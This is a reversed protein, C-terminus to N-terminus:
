AKGTEALQQEFEDAALPKGYLYGQFSLCGQGLLVAEQAQNEVGEAVINLQMSAAIDIMSRVIALDYNDTAIDRVFSQDIKIQDIPMRKLHTLSSHGTGFDDMSLSVGLAKLQQMIEITYDMDHLAMSETIELKLRAPEIGSSRLAHQVQEIFDPKRLRGTSAETGANHTRHKSKRLQAPSVNISLVLDRTLASSEWQKLKACATTLVWDGIALILDSEEALGIFQAPHLFGLEPHHWRLLAEAGIPRRHQDVQVQYHLEYQNDKHALHLSDALNNRAELANQIHQDYFRVTNRGARKSEYMANDARKLLEESGLEGHNFLAVGISAGGHHTYSKLHYPRSLALCIKEAIVGALEGATESDGRLSDLIVVFEDGGLRAVTDTARVSDKLRQAVEVLLLDGQSHGKTDNLTKFNDLDLFILGGYEGSLKSAAIAYELRERFLHRNPLGTLSDSYALEYIAADAQQTVTEVDKTANRLRDILLVFNALLMVIVWAINRQLHLRMSRLQEHQWAYSQANLSEHNAISQRRLEVLQESLWRDNGRVAKDVEFANNSSRALPYRALAERYRKGILTHREILVAVKESFHLTALSQRHLARLNAATDSTDASTGLQTTQGDHQPAELALLERHLEELQTHVSAESQEFRRWYLEYLDPDHGRLLVDKWEHVQTNFEIEIGALDNAQDIHTLLQANNNLEALELKQVRTNIHWLGIITIASLTAILAVMWLHKRKTKSGITMFAGLVKQIKFIIAHNLDLYCSCALFRATLRYQLVKNQITTDLM